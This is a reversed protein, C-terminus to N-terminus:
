GRKEQLKLSWKRGTEEEVEKKSELDGAEGSRRGREIGEEEKEGEM